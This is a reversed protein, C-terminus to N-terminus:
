TLQGFLARGALGLREAIRVALLSPDAAERIAEYRQTFERSAPPDNLRSEIADAVDNPSLTRFTPLFGEFLEALGGARSALIPAGAAIALNAVGSQEATTYPLLVVDALSFWGAVHGAPVHGLFIVVSELNLEAVRGRVAELYVRDAAEFRGFAPPRPRVAGAVVLRTTNLLQANSASLVGLGDVVELLGKDIHIFGFLLLISKGQLEYRRALEQGTETAPPMAYVPHPSLLVRDEPLKLRGVLHDHAAVTHVHVLDALRSVLAYYVRAPLGMKACDRTVEHHTIVLPLGSLRCAVLLVWMLPLKPGYTAISHQVQVFTADSRRLRLVLQWLGWPSWTLHGCRTWAANSDGDCTSVVSVLHGSAAYAQCLREAYDAIGDQVPPLPSVM